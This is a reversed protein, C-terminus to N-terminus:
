NAIHENFMNLQIQMKDLISNKIPFQQNIVKRKSLFWNVNESFREGNSLEKKMSVFEIDDAHGQTYSLNYSIFFITTTCTTTWIFFM